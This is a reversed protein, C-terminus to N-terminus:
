GDEEAESTLWKEVVEYCTLGFNHCFNKISCNSCDVSERASMAEAMEELSMAKIREFNTMAKEKKRKRLKYGCNPCYNLVYSEGVYEYIGGLDMFDYGCNGCKANNYRAFEEDYGIIEGIIDAQPTIYTNESMKMMGKM